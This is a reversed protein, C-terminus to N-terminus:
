NQSPGILNIKAKPELNLYNYAIFYGIIGNGIITLDNM